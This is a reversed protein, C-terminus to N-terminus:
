VSVQPLMNRLYVDYYISLPSMKRELVDFIKFDMFYEDRFEFFDSFFDLFDLNEINKSFISIKRFNRCKQFIM